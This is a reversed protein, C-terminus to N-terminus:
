WLEICYMYMYTNMIFYDLEDTYNIHRDKVSYAAYIQLLFKLLIFQIAIDRQLM